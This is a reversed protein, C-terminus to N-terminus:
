KAGKLDAIADQIDQLPNTTLSVTFADLWTRKEKFKRWVVEGILLVACIGGAIAAVHVLTVMAKDIQGLFSALIIVVVSAAVGSAGLKISKLMFGFFVAVGAGAIALAVVLATIHAAQSTAAEAQKKANAADTAATNAADTLAKNASVLTAVNGSLAQTQTTLDSVQGTLKTLAGSVDLVSQARDWLTDWVSKLPAVGDPPTLARGKNVDEQIGKGIGDATTAQTQLGAGIDQSAKVVAAANTTAHQAASASQKNIADLPGRANGAICAAFLLSTLLASAALNYYKTLTITM